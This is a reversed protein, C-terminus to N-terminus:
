VLLDGLTRRQQVTPRRLRGLRACVRWVRQLHQQVLLQHPLCHGLRAVARRRALAPQPLALHATTHAHVCALLARVHARARKPHQTASRNLPFWAACTTSGCGLCCSLSM